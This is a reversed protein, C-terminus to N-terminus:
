QRAFDTLRLKHRLVTVHGLTEAKGIDAAVSVVVAGVHRNRFAPHADIDARASNFHKHLAYLLGLGNEPVARQAYKFHVRKCVATQRNCLRQNFGRFVSSRGNHAAAVAERNDFLGLYLRGLKGMAGGAASGAHYKPSGNKEADARIHVQAPQRFDHYAPWFGRGAFYFSQTYRRGALIAKASVVSDGCDADTVTNALVRRPLQGMFDYARLIARNHPPSYATFLRRRIIHPFLLVPFVSAPCAIGTGAKGYQPQKSRFRFRGADARRTYGAAM